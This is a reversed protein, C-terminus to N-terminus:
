VQKYWQSATREERHVERVYAEMRVAVAARATSSCRMSGHQPCGCLAHLACAGDGLTRLKKCVAGDFARVRPPLGPASLRASAGTAEVAQSRIDHLSLAYVTLQQGPAPEEDRCGLADAVQRGGGRTTSHWGEGLVHSELFYARGRGEMRVEDWNRFLPLSTDHADAAAEDSLRRAREPDACGGGTHSLWAAIVAFAREVRGVPALEKSGGVRVANVVVGGARCHASVGDGIALRVAECSAILRTHLAIKRLKRSEWRLVRQAEAGQLPLDTHHQHRLIGDEYAWRTHGLLMRGQKRLRRAGRHDESVVRRSVPTVKQNGQGVCHGGRRLSKRVAARVLRTSSLEHQEQVRRFKWGDHRKRSKTCGVAMAFRRARQSGLCRDRVVEATAFWGDLFCVRAPGAQSRPELLM